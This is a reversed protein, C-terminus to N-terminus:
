EADFSELSRRFLNRMARDAERLQHDSPAERIMGRVSRAHMGAKARIRADELLLDLIESVRRGSASAQARLWSLNRQTLAVSVRKRAM